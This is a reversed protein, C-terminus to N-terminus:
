VGSDVGRRQVGSSMRLWEIAAAVEDNAPDLKQLREYWSRAADINGMDRELRALYLMAKLNRSDVALARELINRAKNPAFSDTSQGSKLAQYTAWGKSALYVPDKPNSEAAKTFAMLADSWSSAEMERVGEQFTKEAEFLYSLAIKRDQGYDAGIREDYISRQRSDTLVAVARGIEKGVCDLLKRARSSLMYARYQEPSYKAMLRAGSERVTSLPTSPGVNLFQYLTRSLMSRYVDELIREISEDTGPEPVGPREPMPEPERLAPDPQSQEAAVEEEKHKESEGEVSQASRAGAGSKKKTKEEEFSQEPETDEKAAVVKEAEEVALKLLEEVSREAEFSVPFDEQPTVVVTRGAGYGDEESTVEAAADMEVQEELSVPIEYEESGDAAEDDFSLSRPVLRLTINAEEEDVEPFGQSAAELGSAPSEEAEAEDSEAELIVEPELDEEEELEEEELEEEEPEEEEPEEEEPEADEPPEPAPVEKLEVGEPLSEAFGHELFLEVDSRVEPSETTKGPVRGLPLTQFPSGEKEIYSTVLAAEDLDNPLLVVTRKEEADGARTGYELSDEDITSQVDDQFKLMGTYCLAFMQRVASEKDGASDVVSSATPDQEMLFESIDEGYFVSRFQIMHRYFDATKEFNHDWRDAFMRSMHEIDNDGLVARFLGEHLELANRYQNYDDGVVVEGPTIRYPVKEMQFSMAFVYASLERRLRLLEKGSFLGRGVLLEELRVGRNSSEELYRKLEERTLRRKRLLFAPFSLSVQTSSAQIPAGNRFAIVTKGDSGQLTITGNFGQSRLKHGIKFLQYKRLLPLTTAM